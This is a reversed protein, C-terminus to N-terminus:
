PRGQAAYPAQYKASSAKIRVVGFRMGSACFIPIISGDNDEERCFWLAGTAPDFGHEAAYVAALANKMKTPDPKKPASQYRPFAGADSLVSTVDDPFGSDALRNLVLAALAVQCVLPYGDAEACIMEAIQREDIPSLFRSGRQDAACASSASLFVTSIIVFLACAGEFIKKLTNNTRL